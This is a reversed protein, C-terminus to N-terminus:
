GSSHRSMITGATSLGHSATPFRSSGADHRSRSHTWKRKGRRHCISRRVCVLCEISINCGPPEPQVHTDALLLIFRIKIPDNREPGNYVVKEARNVCPKKM